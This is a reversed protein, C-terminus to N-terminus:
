FLHQPDVDSKISLGSLAKYNNDFTNLLNHLQNVQNSKLIVVWTYQNARKEIGAPTPGLISVDKFHTQGLHKLMPAIKQTVESILTSQNKHSFYMSIIKYFPPCHCMERLSLESEIFANTEENKLYNFISSEPSYTQIIVEGDDSYRGARGSVQTITQFTREQSRFDPLNLQQDIGLIFVKKVRKFNHGKSLMQTGVLIDIKGSHFADLKEELQKFTKVEDRDFRDVRAEPFHKKLEIEVRETGFGKPIITLSFCKPCQEPLAQKFDCHQCELTNKAKFYRMTVSCNPCYFQHGCARCQVHSAFGLRNLFVLIQEKKELGSKIGSVVEPSLPWLSDEKKMQMKEEHTKEKTRIDVLKIVPLKAGGPREKLSYYHVDPQPNKKFFQFTELSPTASGLVIPCNYIQAKKMAVDRAHYPCRDEQKFSSDHEEDVVILGLNKIPLFVSSRVGVFIEPTDLDSARKWLLYKQSASIESHFTHVPEVLEQTFTKLFQPTLNIEPLLYLVSQGRALVDKIIDTYVVTKGSGTVGHILHRSFKGITARISRSVEQQASTLTIQGSVDTNKNVTLPRPKKKSAPLTDFILKGMSFHYYDAMWSFIKLEKSTINPYELSLSKIRKPEIGEPVASVQELVCGLAERKGLPVTVVDGINVQESEHALYTLGKNKQPYNVAVRYFM